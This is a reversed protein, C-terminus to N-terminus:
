EYANKLVKRSNERIFDCSQQANRSAWEVSDYEDEENEEVFPDGNWGNEKYVADRIDLIDWSCLDYEEALIELREKILAEVEFFSKKM